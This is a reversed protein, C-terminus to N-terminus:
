DSQLVERVFPITLERGASMSARDLREFLENLERMDRPLRTILYRAVKDPLVLARRTARHQLVRLKDEDSLEGLQCVLGASLRSRLDALEFNFGRPGSSSAILLYANAALTRNYLDFIAREWIRDGAILDIDDIALFDLAELDDVISAGFTAVEALPIYMSRAAGQPQGLQRLTAQILHSKGTGPAGALMVFWPGSRDRWQELADLAFQNPGTIYDDLDLHADDFLALTLQPLSLVM